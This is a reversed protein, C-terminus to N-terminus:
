QKRQRVLSCHGPFNVENEISGSNTLLMWVYFVCGFTFNVGSTDESSSEGERTLLFPDFPDVPDSPDLPDFPDFPDAAQGTDAPEGESHASRLAPMVLPLSVKMDVM